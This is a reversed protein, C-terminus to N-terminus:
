YQNGEYVENMPCGTVPDLVPVVRIDNLVDLKSINTPRVAGRQVSHVGLVAGAM